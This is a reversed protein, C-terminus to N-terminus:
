GRLLGGMGAAAVSGPFVRELAAGSLGLHPGLVGKAISRLDTTPALDRGEFLQGAALGPWDGRVRGGAVNGGLVFAVTGTGHDTGRTGNVRVTRGFETMVLVVTERWAEGLGTKLAVLGRDLQGLPGGLRDAQNAHTDWGGIELAALRPGDAAALLKAAAAALAPFGFREAARTEGMLTAEAFGRERLGAAVAPGTVPDAAHLAAIRAYLDAQPAQFTAPMWNGVAAPGRLLVPMLSGVALALDAGKGRAKGSAGRAVMEGAVRNLWGSDLRQEAGFEMWDQAEFHSRNRWSGAVAHVVLAEGAGYLGHLGALAPHLGFFGGMDLLGGAVGPLGPMLGTRHGALAADGYPVVASLGDLAGRLIVVVLRREGPAAAVALASRGLGVVGALGLLATRRGLPRSVSDMM